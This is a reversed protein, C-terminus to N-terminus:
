KCNYDIAKANVIDYTITITSNLLYLNYPSTPLINVNTITPQDIVATFLQTYYLTNDGALYPYAAVTMNITDYAPLTQLIIAISLDGYFHARFTQIKMLQKHGVSLAISMTVNNQGSSTGTLNFVMPVNNDATLTVYYYDV